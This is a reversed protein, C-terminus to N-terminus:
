VVESYISPCEHLLIVKSPYLKSWQTHRVYGEVIKNSVQKSLKKKTFLMMLLNQRIQNYIKNFLTPKNIANLEACFFLVTFYLGNLSYCHRASLDGSTTQSLWLKSHPCKRQIQSTCLLLDPLIKILPLTAFIFDSSVLYASLVLSVSHFVTFWVPCDYLIIQTM